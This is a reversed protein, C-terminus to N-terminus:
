PTAGTHCDPKEAFQSIPAGPKGWWREAAASVKPKLPRDEEMARTYQQLQADTAHTDLWAFFSRQTKEYDAFPFRIVAKGDKIHDCVDDLIEQTIYGQSVDAM